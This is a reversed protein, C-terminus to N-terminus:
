VHMQCTSNLSCRALIWAGGPACSILLFGAFLVSLIWPKPMSSTCCSLMYCLRRPGLMGGEARSAATLAVLGCSSEYLLCPGVSTSRFGVTLSLEHRILRTCGTTRKQFIRNPGHGL